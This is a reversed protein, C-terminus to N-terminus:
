FSMKGRVWNEIEEQEKYSLRYIDRNVWEIADRTLHSTTVIVGKTAKQEERVASLERVDKLKVKNNPSYKKAQWVSQILGIDTDEKTAVVDIGGDRTAKTVVVSWGQDELLLGILKEFDRWHMESLLRGEKLIDAALVLYSPSTAFWTPKPMPPQWIFSESPSPSAFEALLFSSDGGLWSNNDVWQSTLERFEGLYDHDDEAYTSSFGLLGPDILREITEIDYLANSFIFDNIEDETPPGELVESTNIQIDLSARRVSISPEITEAIIDRLDQVSIIKKNM